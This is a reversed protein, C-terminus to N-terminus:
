EPLELDRSVGAYSGYIVRASNGVLAAVDEVAMPAIPPVAHPDGKLALSIMTHRTSYPSLYDFKLGGIIVKWARRTFNSWDIPGGHPAPFVLDGDEGRELGELLGKVRAGLRVMRKKQRKLGEKRRIQGAENETIAGRFTLSRCDVAVDGWQLGLAESPRCGCFFLFEVLAAYHSYCNHHRFAIIIRDREGRSWFEIPADTDANKAVAITLGQFPNSPILKDEAAWKGMGNLGQLVRRAYDPTTNKILWSRIKGGSCLPVPCRALLIRWKFYQSRMTSPSCQPRKHDAYKDFVEILPPWGTPDDPEPRARAKFEDPRYRELTKDFDGLLLDRKVENIKLEALSRHMATDPWGLGLNYRVGAVSFRIGLRGRREVIQPEAVRAKYKRKPQDSMSIREEGSRNKLALKVGSESRRLPAIAIM